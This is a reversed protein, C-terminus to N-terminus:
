DHQNGGWGGVGGAINQKKTQREEGEVGRVQRLDGSTKSSPLQQPSCDLTSLQIHSLLLLNSCKGLM